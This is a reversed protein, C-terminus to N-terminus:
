SFLKLTYVIINYFQILALLTQRSCFINRSSLLNLAYFGKLYLMNFYYYKQRSITIIFLAQIINSGFKIHLAKLYFPKIFFFFDYNEKYRFLFSPNKILLKSIKSKQKNSHFSYFMTMKM